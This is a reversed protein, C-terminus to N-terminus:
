ARSERASAGRGTLGRVQEHAYIANDVERALEMAQLALATVQQTTQTGARLRLIDFRM